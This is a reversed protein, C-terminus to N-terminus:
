YTVSERETRDGKRIARTTLRPPDSTVVVWGSGGNVMTYLPSVNIRSPLSLTRWLESDASPSADDEEMWTIM